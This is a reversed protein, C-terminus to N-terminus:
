IGQTPLVNVSFVACLFNDDNFTLIAKITYIISFIYLVVSQLPPFIM